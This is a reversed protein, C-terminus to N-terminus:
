RSSTYGHLSEHQSASDHPHGRGIEEGLGAVLDRNELLLVPEAELRSGASSSAPTFFIARRESCPWFCSIRSAVATAFISGTKWGTLVRIAPAMRSRPSALPSERRNVSLSPARQRSRSPTPTFSPERMM